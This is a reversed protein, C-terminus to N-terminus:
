PEFLLSLAESINRLAAAVSDGQSAVEGPDKNAAGAAEWRAVAVWIDGDLTLSIKFHKPM